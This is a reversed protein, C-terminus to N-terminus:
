YNEIAEVFPAGIVAAGVVLIFAFLTPHATAFDIWGPTLRSELNGHLIDTAFDLAFLVALIAFGGAIYGRVNSM